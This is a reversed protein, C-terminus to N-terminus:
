EPKVVKAIIVFKEEIKIILVKDGKYLLNKKYEQLNENSNDTHLYVKKGADLRLNCDLLYDEKQITLDGTKIKGDSLVKGLQIPPGNYYKGAKRMQEIFREYTNIARQIARWQNRYNSEKREM